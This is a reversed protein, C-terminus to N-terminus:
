SIEMQFHESLETILLDARNKETKKSIPKRRRRRRGETTLVV